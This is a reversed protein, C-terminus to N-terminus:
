RGAQPEDSILQPRVGGFVSRREERGRKILDRIRQKVQEVYGAIVEDAESGDGEFHMPESYYIECHVPMPVPLLYPPVPIYPAGVLKAIRKLHMVTPLAEEGGIFAFPVVPTNTELALRMFGTGFRVLEYRDKYLKGTGRAGEPFVMLLRDERLLRAAHEPLGTFQGVRSFWHSVVPWRNAFKEVMGQGLRPPDMELFLSAIIMAGDVPVGGSHNGVVMARGAEPVHEIGHTRVTFYHRYLWGLVTMFEALHEQSIGYPDLGYRNFPLDLRRVRDFVERDVIFRLPM